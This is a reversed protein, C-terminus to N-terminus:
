SPALLGFYTLIVRIIAEEDATSATDDFDWALYIAKYGNRNVAVGAANGSPAQFIQVGEAGVTFDDPFPDPSVDPNIGAMVGTGTLIGDSGSDSVYNAQLYNQYFATAHNGYGLDNDAILLNGGADLYAVARSWLDNSYGGAYFVASYDLLAATSMAEFVDRAVALYTIGLSTLANEMATAATADYAVVLITVEDEAGVYTSDGNENGFDFILNGDVDFSFNSVSVEGATFNDCVGLHSEETTTITWATYDVSYPGQYICGGGFDFAYTGDSHFTMSNLDPWGAALEWTNILKPAYASDGHENGFDFILNGDEDFSFSSVSIEGASFNDCVGLHSEETTTITGNAYSVTYPGQYVCGGGFDFAYTGDSYFTVGNLDEWGQDLVWAGLIQDGSSRSSSGGGGGGCGTLTVLMSVVMVMLLHAIRM